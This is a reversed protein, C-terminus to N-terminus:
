PGSAAVPAAERTLGPADGPVVFASAEGVEGTRAVVVVSEATHGDLVFAVEGRLRWGGDAVATARLDTAGPDHSGSPPLYGLAFRTEGSAVGPLLRSCADEDGSLLLAQAGLVASSLFPVCPLAFGMQEAVVGVETFGYGAGGHEEPVALGAWGMQSIERWLDLDVADTTAMTERVSKTTARSALMDRATKRLLDQEETWAFSAM